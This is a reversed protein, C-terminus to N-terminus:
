SYKERDMIKGRQSYLVKEEEKEEEKRKGREYGELTV